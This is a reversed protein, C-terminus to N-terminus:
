LMVWGEGLVRYYCWKRLGLHQYGFFPLFFCGQIIFLFVISSEPFGIIFLIYHLLFVYFGHVIDDVIRDWDILRVANEGFGKVGRWSGGGNPQYHM